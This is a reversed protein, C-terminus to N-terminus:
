RRIFIVQNRTSILSFQEYHMFILEDPYKDENRDINLQRVITSNKLRLRGTSNCSILLLIFCVKFLKEIWCSKQCDEAKEM